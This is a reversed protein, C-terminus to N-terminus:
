IYILLIIYIDYLDPLAPVFFKMNESLFYLLCLADVEIKTQLFSKLVANSANRREWNIMRLLIETTKM